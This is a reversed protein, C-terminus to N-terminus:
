VGRNEALDVERPERNGDGVGDGVQEGKSDLEPKEEHDPDNHNQLACRHMGLEDDDEHRQQEQLHGQKSDPDAAENGGEGCSIFIERQEDSEADLEPHIGTANKVRKGAHRVFPTPNQHQIGHHRDDFAKAVGKEPGANHFAPLQTDAESHTAKYEQPPNHYEATDLPCKTIRNLSETQPRRKKADERTERRNEQEVM